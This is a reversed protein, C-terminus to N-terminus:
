ILKFEMNYFDEESSVKEFGNKLYWQVAPNKKLVKLTIPLDYMNKAFFLMAKFCKSMYGYGGFEPKGLIVNYVDWRNEVLRIGMCGFSIKDTEVVLMFDNELISFRKFWEIQQDINIETNHFFYNKNLNKWRRLNELDDNNASRIKLVKNNHDINIEINNKEIKM